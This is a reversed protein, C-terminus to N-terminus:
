SRDGGERALGNRGGHHLVIRGVPERREHFLAFAAEYEEIPFRHTIVKDLDIEHSAVLRLAESWDAASYSLSGSVELERRVLEDDGFRV